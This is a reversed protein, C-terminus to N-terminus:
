IVNNLWFMVIKSGLVFVLHGESQALRGVDAGAEGTMTAARANKALMQTKIPGSLVSLSFPFPTEM